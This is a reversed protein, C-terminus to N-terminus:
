WNGCGQEREGGGTAHHAMDEGEQMLEPSQRVKLQLMFRFFIIGVILILNEGPGEEKRGM